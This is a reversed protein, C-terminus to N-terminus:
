LCPVPPMHFASENGIRDIIGLPLSAGNGCLLKEALGDWDFNPTENGCYVSLQDGYIIKIGLSIPFIM